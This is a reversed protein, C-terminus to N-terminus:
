EWGDEDSLEYSNNFKVVQKLYRVYDENECMQKGPNNSLKAVPRGNCSVMKMVINTAKDKIPCTLSTGIGAVVKARDKFRRYIANAKELSLSDSFVLKKSKPDIGYGEYMKIMLEGWVFPDGSDHRVGDFLKAYYCSFDELFKDTGLNDSLAIGLDGNFHRAWFDLMYRQSDAVPVNPLGQGLCLYEHAMTGGPTVGHKMALYMNSTGLFNPNKKLRKVLMDQFQNHMRRRTGMEIFPCEISQFRENTDFLPEELNGHYVNEFEIGCYLENVIALIYIEFMSVAIIPAEATRIELAAPKGDGDVVRIGIWDPNLQFNRLYERYGVKDRMYRLSFLYDLEGPLFKLRCLSDVEERLREVFKDTVPIKGTRDKFVYSATVNPFGAYMASHMSFKYADTDLLSKVIAM